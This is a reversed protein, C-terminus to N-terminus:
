CPFDRALVYVDADKVNHPFGGAKESLSTSTGQLVKPGINM